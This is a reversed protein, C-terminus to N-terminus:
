FIGAVNIEDDDAFVGFADVHVGASDEFRSSGVFDGDLLVDVSAFANLAYDTESEFKRCVVFFGVAARARADKHGVLAVGHGVRAAEPLSHKLLHGGLKGLNFGVVHEHVGKAHVHDAVRALEVDNDGVIKETVDDGVEGRAELSAEAHGGAAVNMGSASRHELGDM